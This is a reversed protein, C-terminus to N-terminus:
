SKERLELKISYIFENSRKNTKPWNACFIQVACVAQFPKFGSSTSKEAKAHSHTTFQENNMCCWITITVANKKERLITLISSMVSWIVMMTYSIHMVRVFYRLDTCFLFASIWNEWDLTFSITCEKQESPLLYLVAVNPCFWLFFRCRTPLTWGKSHVIFHLLLTNLNHRRQFCLSAVLFIVMSHFFFIALMM